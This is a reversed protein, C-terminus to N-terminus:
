HIIQSWPWKCTVFTRVGVIGSGHDGVGVSPSKNRKRFKRSDKKRQKEPPIPGRFLRLDLNSLRGLPVTVVGRNLPRM